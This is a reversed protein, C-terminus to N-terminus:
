LGLRAVEIKPCRDVVVDLGAAVARALAEDNVVGLQTWLAGAKAAIAEEVIAPLADSRRFVDVMDVPGADALSALVPQGLLTQGALTPNVPVVEYGRALLFKMVGHAARGPNDSAGVLAIRKVRGLLGAIEEDSTLLSM